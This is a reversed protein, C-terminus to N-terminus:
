LSVGIVKGVSFLYLYAEGVSREGAEELARAYIRLQERYMESIRKREEEFPVRPNIRNTKYDLLVIKGDEVFYCDIIGQVIINEGDREMMLDFPQERYLMGKRAATVAREGLGTRFFRAIESVPVANRENELFIGAEVFEDIANRIYAEGEEEARLFDIREMIGHCVTGKEAATLRQEAQLFKPIPLVTEPESDRDPKETEGDGAYMDEDADSRAAVPRHAEENLTSVSYKSRLKRATPYPYRYSLRQEVREALTPGATSDDKTEEPAATQTRLETLKGCDIFETRPMRDLISLYDTQGRAGAAKGKEYDEASRVTGTLYLIDRARTLAVYLVRIHEEYEEQRMKSIIIDYTLSRQELSHEPDELYMGLGIDKHFLVKDGARSYMLKKGMGSVIVMPFELGKSKHITMIRVVDDNEGLLRVQGISVRNRKVNDIYRMFGYLSSQGNEEFRETRDCLARLNAQRQTGNPMAGMAIYYGTELLLRWVLDTLPVARSLIKWRRLRQLVSGCREAFEDDGEAVARFADAYSGEPQRKRVEALQNTSFGFIESRLVSILPVDQYQNDILALLNMFVNIEMTDFYGDSDDVFVPVGRSRLIESYAAANSSVSRMLIVMDRYRLRKHEGTRSDCYERGLNEEILRCVELAELENNKMDAIAEDDVYERTSTDILKVEPEFCYRADAKLGPYLCADEDYGEMIPRFRENIWSLISPKSRFNRNLDIKMSSGDRCNGYADYKSQFIEPEALRFKYISQKIDGVMFLNNERRIMGIITEQLVSTDQYEDIFIYQFRDRYFEATEPNKLIKLCDHEIDSFDLLKREAKKERFIRDYEKLLKQLTRAVPVARRAGEIRSDVDDKLFELVRTRAKKAKEKYAKFEDNLMDFDAKEEKKARILTWRFGSLHDRLGKYDGHEAMDRMTEHAETDPRFKDALRELGAQELLEQAALTAEEAEEMDKLIVSNLFQMAKTQRYEEPSLSIERIKEELTEFPEPLAMLSRYLNQIMTRIADNSRESGYWDLFDFFEKEAGNFSTELLEDLAEERIVASQAEDCITFDPERDIQYFFRRIVELAFAHFTSISAQPLLELQRRLEPRTVAREKLARRIKERMEAAAANTFTVILMSDISVNEETVMKRIREVLVATKGSGAAAAVLINRGREDITTKQQPTWDTM